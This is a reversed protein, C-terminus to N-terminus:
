ELQAPGTGIYVQGISFFIRGDVTEYEICWGTGNYYYWGTGPKGHCEFLQNVTSGVGIGKVTIFRSDYIAISEVPGNPNNQNLSLVGTGYQQEPPVIISYSYFILGYPEFTNYGGGSRATGNCGSDVFSFADTTTGYRDAPRGMKGSLSQLSDGLLIFPTFNNLARDYIYIGGPKIFYEKKWDQSYSPISFIFGSLLLVFSKLLFRILYSNDTFHNV